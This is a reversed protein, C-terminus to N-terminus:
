FIVNTWWGAGRAKNLCVWDTNLYKGRAYEHWHAFYWKSPTRQFLIEDLFLTTPDYHKRIIGVKNYIDFVEPCTHSFVIDYSENKSLIYSIDDSNITEQFFWNKGETRYMKDISSAGGIFLLKKGNVEISSGIPCLFINNEVEIPTNGLRGVVKEFLDWDEHNGPILYVKTNKPKIEGKSDKGQWFYTNDGCQILIDPQKKEIFMNLSKFQGHIDGVAIIKM